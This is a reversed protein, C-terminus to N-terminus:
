AADNYDKRSISPRSENEFSQHDILDFLKFLTKGKNYADDFEKEFPTQSRFPLFIKQDCGVQLVYIMRSLSQRVPHIIKKFMFFCVGYELLLFIVACLFAKEYFTIIEKSFLTTPVKLIMAGMMKKNMVGLPYGLIMSTNDKISWYEHRQHIELGKDNKQLWEEMSKRWRMPATHGISDQRSSYLIVSSSADYDVVFIEEGGDGLEIMKQISILDRQIFSMSSLYFGMKHDLNIKSKLEFLATDIEEIKNHWLKKEYLTACHVSIFFFGIASILIILSSWIRTTM